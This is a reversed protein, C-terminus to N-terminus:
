RLGLARASLRENSCIFNHTACHQLGLGSLNSRDHSVPSGMTVLHTSVAGPYSRLRASITGPTRLPEKGVKVQCGPGKSRIHWNRLDYCIFVVPIM